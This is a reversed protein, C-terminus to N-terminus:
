DNKQEQEMYVKHRLINYHAPAGVGVRFRGFRDYFVEFTIEEGTKRNIIHVPDHETVTLTLM